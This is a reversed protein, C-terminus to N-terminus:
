RPAGDRPPPLQGLWDAVRRLIPEREHLLLFHNGELMVLESRRSRRAFARAAAPGTMTDEDGQVVLAPLTTRAERAAGSLLLLGALRREFRRALLSAGVAGSSLGALVVHDVGRDELWDLTADVIRAGRAGRWRGAGDVSPCVTMAGSRAAAEAVLACPLAANGGYGHLFVVARRTAEAPAAISADFADESQSTTHSRELLSPIGRPFRRHMRETERDLAARLGARESDRLESATADFVMAMLAAEQRSTSVRLSEDEPLRAARWTDQAAAPVTVSLALCAILARTM